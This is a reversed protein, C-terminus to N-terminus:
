SPPPYSPESLSISVHNPAPDAPSVSSFSSFGLALRWARCPCPLFFFSRVVFCCAFGEYSYWQTIDAGELNIGRYSTKQSYFRLLLTIPANSCALMPVQCPDMRETAVFLPWIPFNRGLFGVFCHTMVISVVCCFPM